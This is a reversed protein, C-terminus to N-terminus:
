ELCGWAKDASDWTVYRPYACLPRERSPDGGTISRNDPEVGQEVWAMLMELGPFIHPGPGTRDHRVGTLLFLRAFSESERGYRERVTEFWHTTDQASIGSDGMGHFVMLKGGAGKFADLDNSAVDTFQSAANMFAPDRDFDFNYVDFEPDPPERFVNHMSTNRAKRGNNPFEIADGIHWGMFDSGADYAFPAYLEAGASNVPGEHIMTFAEIQSQSLCEEAAGDTCLLASFDPACLRASDVVRDKLGDLNDCQAIIERTLLAFDADDFFRAFIPKGAADKPARESLVRVSWAGAVHGRTQQRIPNQSLIGDFQNPHKLAFVLGQRGGNSNGVFYSYRPWTGYASQLLAKAVTATIDIANYGWDVRAKPELGFSTDSRSGLNHGADTSVVAFGLTLAPPHGITNVGVAPRISGDVGGGGQFYFRENWAAPMRLEFGTAYRKGDSGVREELYGEVRCHDPLATEDITAGSLFEAVEIRLDPYAFKALASCTDETMEASAASALATAATILAVSLMRMRSHRM